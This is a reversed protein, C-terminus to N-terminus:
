AGTAEGQIQKLFSVAATQGGLHGTTLANSSFPYEAQSHNSIVLGAQSGATSWEVSIEKPLCTQHPLHQVKFRFFRSNTRGSDPTVEIIGNVVNETDGRSVPLAEVM